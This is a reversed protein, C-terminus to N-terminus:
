ALLHEQPSVSCHCRLVNRAGMCSGTRRCTLATCWAPGSGLTTHIYTHQPAIGYSTCHFNHHCCATDAVLSDRQGSGLQVGNSGPCCCGHQLAPLLLPKCGQLTHAEKVQARRYYKADCPQETSRHASSSALQSTSSPSNAVHQEAGVMHRTIRRGPGRSYLASCSAYAM